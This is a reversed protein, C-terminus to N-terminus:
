IFLLILLQNPSKSSSLIDFIVASFYCTCDYLYYALHVFKYGKGTQEIISLM